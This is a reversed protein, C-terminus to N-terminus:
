CNTIKMFSSAKNILTQDIIDASEYFPFIHFKFVQNGGMPHRRHPFQRTKNDHIQQRHINLRM